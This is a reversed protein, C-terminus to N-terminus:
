EPLSVAECPFPYTGATEAERVIRGIEESSTIEGCDGPPDYWVSFCALCIAHPGHWLSRRTRRVLRGCCDCRSGYDDCILTGFPAADTM